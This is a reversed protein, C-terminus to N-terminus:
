THTVLEIRSREIIEPYRYVDNNGGSVICVVTKGRICDAVGALGAVALAGAPETIIGDAQYLELMTRCLKQNDVTLMLPQLLQILEFNLRGVQSVAAGDVFTDLEPLATVRGQTLALQLSAAGAPEVAVLQTGPWVSQLYSGVGALLGGGGVPALLMDPASELQHRLECGITAQGVIIRRDDFPHV